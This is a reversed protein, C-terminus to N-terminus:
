QETHVKIWVPKNSFGRTEDWGVDRLTKKAYDSNLLITQGATWRGDGLEHVETVGYKSDDDEPAGLRQILDKVTLGTPFMRADFVPTHIPKDLEMHRDWIVHFLTHDNPYLYEVGDFSPAPQGLLNAGPPTWRTPAPAPAAPAQPPLFMRPDAYAYGCYPPPPSTAPQAPTPAPYFSTGPPVGGNPPEGNITRFHQM